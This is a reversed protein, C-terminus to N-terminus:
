HQFSVGLIGVIVLSTVFAADPMKSKEKQVILMFLNNEINHNYTLISNGSLRKVSATLYEYEPFTTAMMPEICIFWYHYKLVM